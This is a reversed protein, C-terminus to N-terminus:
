IVQYLGSRVEPNAVQTLPTPLVRFLIELGLTVTGEKETKGLAKTGAGVLFILLGIISKVMYVTKKRQM